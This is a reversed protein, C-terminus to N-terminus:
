ATYMGARLETETLEIVLKVEGVTLAIANANPTIIALLDALNVGGHLVQSRTAGLTALDLGTLFKTGVGTVGFDLTSGAAFAETVVVYVRGLASKAPITSIALTADALPGIIDSGAVTAVVACPCRKEDNGLQRLYDAM